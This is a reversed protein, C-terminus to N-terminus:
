DDEKVLLGKSLLWEPIIVTRVLTSVGYGRKKGEKELAGYISEHYQRRKKLDFRRRLAKIVSVIV